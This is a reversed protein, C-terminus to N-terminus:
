APVVKHLGVDALRKISTAPQWPHHDKWYGKGSWPNDSTYFESEQPSIVLSSVPQESDRDVWQLYLKVQSGVTLMLASGIERKGGAVGFCTWLKRAPRGEFNLADDDLVPIPWPELDLIDQWDVTKSDLLFAYADAERAARRLDYLVWFSDHKEALAAQRRIRAGLEHFVQAWREGDQQRRVLWYAEAVAISLEEASDEIRLTSTGDLNDISWIGGGPSTDPLRDCIATRLQRAFDGIKERADRREPSNFGLLWDVSFGTLASINRLHTSGPCKGALWTSVQTTQVGLARAFASSKGGCAVKVVHRLRDSPTVPRSPVLPALTPNEMREIIEREVDDAPVSQNQPARSQKPPRSGRLHKKAKPMPSFHRVAHSGTLTMPKTHNRIAVCAM